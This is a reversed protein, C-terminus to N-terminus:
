QNKQQKSFNEITVFSCFTFSDVVAPNVSVVCKLALKETSPRGLGEPCILLRYSRIRIDSEAEDRDQEAAKPSLTM